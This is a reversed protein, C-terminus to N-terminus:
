WLIKKMHTISFLWVNAAYVLPRTKAYYASKFNKKWVRFCSQHSVWRQYWGLELILWFRDIWVGAWPYETGKRGLNVFDPPFESVLPSPPLPHCADFCCPWVWLTLFLCLHLAQTDTYKAKRNCRYSQTWVSPHDWGTMYSSLFCLRLKGQVFGWLGPQM